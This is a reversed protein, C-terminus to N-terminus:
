SMVGLAMINHDVFDTLNRQQFAKSVLAMLCYTTIAHATGLTKMLSAM